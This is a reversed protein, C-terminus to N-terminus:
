AAIAALSRDPTAAPFSERHSSCFRDLTDIWRVLEDLEADNLYRPEAGLNKKTVPYKMTRLRTLGNDIATGGKANPASASYIALRNLPDNEPLQLMSPMPSSVVAIGRIRDAHGFGLLYALMGGQEFGHVVVRSPDIAYRKAVDDLATFITKVDAPQWREAEASKPVLLILDRAESRAKWRAVLTEEKDAESGHLWIVVGYRLDSRYNAPVYAFGAEQELQVVGVAPEAGKAEVPPHAAPLEAPVDEPM